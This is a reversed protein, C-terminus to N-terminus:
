GGETYTKIGELMASVQRKAFEIPAALAQRAIRRTIDQERELDDMRTSLRRDLDDIMRELEGARGRTVYGGVDTPDANV